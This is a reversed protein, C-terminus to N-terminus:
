YFLIVSAPGGRPGPIGFANWGGAFHDVAELMGAVESRTLRFNGCLLSHAALM